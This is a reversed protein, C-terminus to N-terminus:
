AGVPVPAADFNRTDVITGPQVQRTIKTVNARAYRLAPGVDSVTLVTVSRKQPETGDTPKTMYVEAGLDGTVIVRDGSSLSAAVHEAYERWLTCRQFLTELDEWENTQRNLRRPTTAVTFNAVAVGQQSYRLEPAATLNGVITLQPEGTM